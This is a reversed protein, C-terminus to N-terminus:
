WAAITSAYSKSSSVLVLEEISAQYKQIVFNEDFKKEIKQRSAQGMQHLDADSLSLMATMKEALDKSNRAECLFGNIKDDVVEVCGPVNTAIIPKAMAAAELLSRPTGERYSPLVICDALRFVSQIDDTPGLYELIGQNIWNQLTLEKVGFPSDDKFGVLLFRIDPYTQLVIRAADAYEHIGKDQILRAALLFTFKANRKFEEPQFKQINVGSGPLLDTIKQNVLGKDIFYKLDDSNQFFVKDPFKFVYKYLERAIKSSRSDRLFVTGLGSVNNIVPIGSLKAAITGYLNPKITFHLIVDPRIKKYLKYLQYIYAIDKRPNTGKNELNVLHYKCGEQILHKEYGDAPAITHVEYNKDLFSRILGLRFNYINWATNIVIAIRM